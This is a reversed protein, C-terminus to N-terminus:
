SICKGIKGVENVVRRPPSIEIPARINRLSLDNIAPTM